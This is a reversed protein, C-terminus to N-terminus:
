LAKRLPLVKQRPVQHQPTIEGLTDVAEWQYRCLLSPHQEWCVQLSPIKDVLYLPINLRRACLHGSLKAKNVVTIPYGRQAHSCCQWYSVEKCRSVRYCTSLILKLKVVKSPFPHPVPGCDVFPVDLWHRVWSNQEPPLSNLLNLQPCLVSLVSIQLGYGGLWPNQLCSYNLVLFKM